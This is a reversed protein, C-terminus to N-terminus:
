QRAAARIAAARTELREAAEIHGQARALRASLDLAEATEPHQPGLTAERIRVVRRILVEAEDVLGQDLFRGSVRAIGQAYYLLLVDLAELDPEGKDGQKSTDAQRPEPMAAFQLWGLLGLVAVITVLLVPIRTPKM